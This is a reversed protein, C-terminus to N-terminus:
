LALIDQCVRWRGNERVLDLTIDVEHNEGLDFLKGIVMFAPNIGVRTTGRVHVAAVTGADDVHRTEVHLHTFLHRLYPLKFGRRNAEVRKQHLYNDVMAQPDGQGTCLWKQMDADLYYYDKAFAAAVSAPTQVTEMGILAGQLLAFLVLLVIFPAIRNLSGM